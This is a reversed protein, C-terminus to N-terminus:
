ASVRTAAFTQNSSATWASSASSSSATFRHSSTSPFRRRRAQFAANEPNTARTDNSTPM